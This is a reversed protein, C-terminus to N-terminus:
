DTALPSQQAAERVRQHLDSGFNGSLDVSPMSDTHMLQTDSTLVSPARSHPSRPWLGPIM